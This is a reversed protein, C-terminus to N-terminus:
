GLIKLVSKNFQNLWQKYEVLAIVIMTIVLGILSGAVIDNLWHQSLYVRSFAVLIGLFGMLAKLWNQHSQFALFTFLVFAATSHGSPFSNLALVEVGEVYKVAIEKHFYDLVFHPRAVDFVYNKLIAVLGGALFYAILLVLAQRVDKFLCIIGVFVVFVGDGLHTLYKFFNDVYYNGVLQNIWLHNDIKSFVMLRYFAIIYFVILMLFYSINKKLLNKLLLIMKEFNSNWQKQKKGIDRWKKWLLM